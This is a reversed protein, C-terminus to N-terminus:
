PAPAPGSNTTALCRAWQIMSAILEGSSMTRHWVLARWVSFDAAIVTVAEVSGDKWGEALVHAAMHQLQRFGEGVPVRDADRLVRWIMEHHATYYAYLEQLGYRMRSYERRVASARARVLGFDKTYLAFVKDAEGQERSGLVLAETHYKQYM